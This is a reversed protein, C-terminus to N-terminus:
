AHAGRLRTYGQQIAGWFLAVLGLVM